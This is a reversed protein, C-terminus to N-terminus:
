RYIYQIAKRTGSIRYIIEKKGDGDIDYLDVGIYERKLFETDEFPDNMHHQYVIEVEKERGTSDFNVEYGELDEAKVKANAPMPSFFLIGIFATLCIYIRTKSNSTKGM